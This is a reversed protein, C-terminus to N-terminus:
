PRIRLKLCFVKIKRYMRWLKGHRRKAQAEDTVVKKQEEEECSTIYLNSQLRQFHPM